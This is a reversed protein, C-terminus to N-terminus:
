TRHKYSFFNQTTFFVWNNTNKLRILIELTGGSTQVDPEGTVTVVTGNQGINPDM